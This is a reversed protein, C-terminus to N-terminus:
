LREIDTLPIKIEQNSCKLAIYLEGFHLFLGASIGQDPKWKTFSRVYNKISTGLQPPPKWKKEKLLSVFIKYGKPQSAAIFLKEKEGVHDTDYMYKRLDFKIAQFHQNVLSFDKYPTILFVEKTVVDSHDVGRPYSQRVFYQFGSALLSDLLQTTLLALPNHM